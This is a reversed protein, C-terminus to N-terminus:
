LFKNFNTFYFFKCILRPGMQPVYSPLFGQPGGASNPGDGSIDIVRRLGQFGNGAIDRRAFDMVASISTWPAASVAQAALRDVFDQASKEGEIVQWDVVRRQYDPGAWGVYTVAIRGTPGSKIASVVAPHALADLYGGRQQAAEHEDVSPSVDVALFLELDVPLDQALSQGSFLSLAAFLLCAARCRM